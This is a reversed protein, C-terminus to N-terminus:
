KMKYPNTSNYIGILDQSSCYYLNGKSTFRGGYIRTDDVHITYDHKNPVEESLFKNNKM